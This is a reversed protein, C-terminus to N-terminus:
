VKVFATPAGYSVSIKTSTLSSGSTLADIVLYDGYQVRLGFAQMAVTSSATEYILSSTNPTAIYGAASVDYTPVMRDSTVDDDNQDYVLHGDTDQVPSTATQVIAVTYPGPRYFTITNGSLTFDDVNGAAWASQLALDTDDTSASYLALGFGLSKVPGLLEFEYEVWLDGVKTSSGDASVHVLAYGPQKSEDDGVNGGASKPGTIGLLRFTSRVANRALWAAKGESWAAFSTVGPLSAIEVLVSNSSRQPYPNAAEYYPAMTVTANISTGVKPVFYFDFKKVRFQQFHDSLGGIWDFSKPSVRYSYHSDGAKLDAVLREAHVVRLGNPISTLRPQGRNLLKSYAAPAM